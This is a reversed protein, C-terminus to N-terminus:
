RKPEYWCLMVVVVVGFKWMLLIEVVFQRWFGGVKEVGVFFIGFGFVFVFVVFKSKKECWLAVVNVYM